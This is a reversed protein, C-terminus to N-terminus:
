WADFVEEALAFATSAGTANTVRVARLTARRWTDGAGQGTVTVFGFNRVSAGVCRPDREVVLVRLGRRSAVWAHALGVIDAGVVIVDYGVAM